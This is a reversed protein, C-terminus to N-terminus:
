KKHIRLILYIIKMKSSIEYFSNNEYYISTINKIMKNIPEDHLHIQHKMEIITFWTIHNKQLQLSYEKIM